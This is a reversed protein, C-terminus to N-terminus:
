SRLSRRWYIDGVGEPANLKASTGVCDPHPGDTALVDPGFALSLRDSRHMGDAARVLALHSFPQPFNGSLRQEKTTCETEALRTRQLSRRVEGHPANCRSKGQPRPHNWSGFRVGPLAREGLDLQDTGRKTAYPTISRRRHPNGEGLLAVTGLMHEEDYGRFGVQPM